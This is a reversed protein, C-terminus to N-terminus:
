SMRGVALVAPDDQMGLWGPLVWQLFLVPNPPAPFRWQRINRSLQATLSFNQLARSQCNMLFPICYSSIIILNTQIIIFGTENKHLILTLYDQFLIM